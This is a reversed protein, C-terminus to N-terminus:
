NATSSHKPSFDSALKVGENTQKLQKNERRLQNLEADKEQEAQTTAEVEAAEAKRIWNHLTVPKIDLMRGIKRHTGSKTAGDEAVVEYYLRLARQRPRM